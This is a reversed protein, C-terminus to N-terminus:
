YSAVVSNAVDNMIEQVFDPEGEFGAAPDGRGAGAAPVGPALFVKAILFWLASSLLILVARGKLDMGM